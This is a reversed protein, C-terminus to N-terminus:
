AHTVHGLRIVKQSSYLIFMLIRMDAMKVGKGVGQKEEKNNGSRRQASFHNNYTIAELHQFNQLKTNIYKQV